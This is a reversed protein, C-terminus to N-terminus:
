KRAIQIVRVDLPPLDMTGSAACNTLLERGCLKGLSVRATKAGHNLLFIFRENASERVSVEVEAPAPLPATLKATRAVQTLLRDLGAADLRTGLYYAVGRGFRHQTVAPRGSFYDGTYTALAKAGELHLLDCWHDCTHRTGGFRVRNTRGEPYPVWEEVWLGLTKRLLAPYGGLVVHENEDVIGSFYTALMTGGQAVFKEINAGAGASLLYLAPAVVLAYGSLDGGPHIFDVGINQAYFWGHLHNAWGAYDIRGPKAELEVAWWAPWDFAIAVRNRVLSGTVGQLKKLEAGLAKVEAFVRSHTASVHPLMGSHFKEAGAQSARWQFFLIGDGGRAVTQLSHIRM